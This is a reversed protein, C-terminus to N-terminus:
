SGKVLDFYEPITIAAPINGTANHAGHASADQVSIDGNIIVHPKPAGNNFFKITMRVPIYGEETKLVSGLTAIQTVNGDAVKPKEDRHMELPYANKCLEELNDQVIAFGSYDGRTENFQHAISRSAGRGTYEFSVDIPANTYYRGTIGLKSLIPTLIKGAESFSLKLLSEPHFEKSSEKKATTITLKANQLREAKEAETEYLLAETSFLPYETAKTEAADVRRATEDALAKALAEETANGSAKEKASLGQCVTTGTTYQM